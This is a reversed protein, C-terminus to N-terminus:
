NESFKQSTAQFEQSMPLEITVITFSSPESQIMISGKYSEVLQKCLLLGIGSGKEKHTGERSTLRNAGFLEKMLEPPIGIGNDEIRLVLRNHFMAADIRVEDGTHSFKIANTILNRLVIELMEPDSCILLTDSVKDILRVGKMMAKSEVQLLVRKVLMSLPFTEEEHKTVQRVSWSLINDLMQNTNDATQKFRDSLFKIEDRSIKENMMLEAMAHINNLPSKLDHTLIKFLHDKLRNLRDLEEKSELLEDQKEQLQNNLDLMQTEGAETLYLFLFSLIVMCSFSIIDLTFSINQYVELDYSYRPTYLSQTSYILVINVVTIIISAFLINREKKGFIIFPIIAVPIYFTKVDAHKGLIISMCLCQALITYYLFAKASLINNSVSLQACVVYLCTCFAFLVNLPYIGLYFLVASLVISIFFCLLITIRTVVIRKFEISTSDPFIGSRSFLFNTIGNM